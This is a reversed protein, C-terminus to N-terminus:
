GGFFKHDNLAHGAKDFGYLLHEGGFLQQIQL